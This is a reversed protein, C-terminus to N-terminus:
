HSGWRSGGRLRRWVSTVLQNGDPSAASLYVLVTYVTTVLVSRILIDLLATNFVPLLSNLVLTLAAIGIVAATSKTFPQMRLKIWIFAFKIANFLIMAGSAGIAAGNIGYRPILILNGVIVSAGLLLILAINFRFYKSLVIIESSPGFLMDILKGLGVMLVVWYGLQYVEKRPMLAFINELNIYVGILLLTGIIFQNVSTKQYITRIDNIDNKEFARAILPMAIQSLARKPIEIITAMYFATTYIAVAALGCMSALMLSDIKGIIIMGAAGALSFLSYGILAKIGRWPPWHAFSIKFHGQIFLYAALAALCAAYALVTGVIFQDYTLWGHFYFVVLAALLARIVVEKLLNPVVNKLLSRSYAELLATMMLIFTLWLVVESYGIIDAANKEFLSAISSKFVFFLTMFLVFAAAGLLLITAIFPGHAQKDKAWQPFFKFISQALGFQAFPSLLIAADQLARLLGVQAPELFRPYLYLLNVYGIAVGVYSIVTSAISQRIM